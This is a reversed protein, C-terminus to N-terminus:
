TCFAVNEEHRPRASVECPSLTVTTTWAMMDCRGADATDRQTDTHGCSFCRIKKSIVYTTVYRLYSFALSISQRRHMIKRQQAIEATVGRM